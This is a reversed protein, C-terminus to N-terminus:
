ILLRQLQSCKIIANVGLPNTTVKIINYATTWDKIPKLVEQDLRNKLDAAAISFQDPEIDLGILVPNGQPMATGEPNIDYVRPLPSLMIARM